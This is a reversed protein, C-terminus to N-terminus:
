QIARRFFQNAVFKEDRTPLGAHLANWDMPGDALYSYFAIADGRAIPVCASTESSSFTSVMVGDRKPKMGEARDLAQQRTQLRSTTANDSARSAFPFWTEGVGNLYYLVTLIRDNGDHHLVYEGGTDYKLVQMDEVGLSSSPQLLMRACSLALRGVLGDVQENGLWAVFSNKRVFDEEIGSDTQAPQMAIAQVTSQLANCEDKTVFNRLVFIPPSSAIREVTVNHVGDQTTRYGVISDGYELENLIPPVGAHLEVFSRTTEQHTQQTTKLSTKPRSSTAVLFATM